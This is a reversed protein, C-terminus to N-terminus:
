HEILRAFMEISADKMRVYPNIAVTKMNEDFTKENNWVYMSPFRLDIQVRELRMIEGIVVDDPMLSTYFKRVFAHRLLLQVALNNMFIGSGSVGWSFVYTGGYMPVRDTIDLSEILTVLRPINFFTSLNTRIYVDYMNQVMSLGQVTKQFIGPAYSEACTIGNKNCELFMVDIDHVRSFIRKMQVWLNYQKQWIETSVNVIVLFIIKM